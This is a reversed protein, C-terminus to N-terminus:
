VFGVNYKVKLKVSKDKLLTWILLHVYVILLILVVLLTLYTDKETIFLSINIFPDMKIPTTFVAAGFLSLHTCYCILVNDQNYAGVQLLNSYNYVVCCNINVSGIFM